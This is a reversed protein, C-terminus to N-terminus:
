PRVEFTLTGKAKHGDVGLVRWDVRYVGAALPRTLRMSIANGQVVARGSELDHGDRATITLGSSRPEIGESFELRVERLPATVVSWPSPSARVLDGHASAAGAWLGLGLSLLLGRRSM